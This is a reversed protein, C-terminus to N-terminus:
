GTRVQVVPAESVATFTLGEATILEDLGAAAKLGTFGAASSPAPLPLGELQASAAYAHLTAPTVGTIHNHIGCFWDDSIADYDGALSSVIDGPAQDTDIELSGVIDGPVGGVTSSPMALYTMVKAGTAGSTEIGIRVADIIQAAALRWPVFVVDGEAVEVTGGHPAAAGLWTGTSVPLPAAPRDGLTVYIGDGGLIGHWEVDKVFAPPDIHEPWPNSLDADEPLLYVGAHAAGAPIAVVLGDPYYGSALATELFSVAVPTGGTFGAPVIGSAPADPDWALPTVHTATGDVASTAMLAAGVFGAGGNASPLVGSVESELDIKPPNAFIAPTVVPSGAGTPIGSDVYPNTFGYELEVLFSAGWDEELSSRFLRWKEGPALADLDVEIANYGSHDEFPILRSTSAPVSGDDVYPDGDTTGLFYWSTSGPTRRYVNFGTAGSPLVPFSITVIQDDGNPVALNVATNGSPESELTTHDRFATIAYEYVGAMLAGGSTATVEVAPVDPVGLPPPTTVTAALSAPSEFDDVVKSVRYHVESSGPFAGDTAASVDLDPADPAGPATITEGDHRHLGIRRLAAAIFSINADTFAYGDTSLREGEFLRILGTEPDYAPM